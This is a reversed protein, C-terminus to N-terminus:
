IRSCIGAFGVGSIFLFMMVKKMAAAMIKAADCAAEPWDFLKL